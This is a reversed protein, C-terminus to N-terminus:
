PKLERRPVRRKFLKQHVHGNSSQPCFKHSVCIESPKEGAKIYRIIERKYVDMANCYDRCALAAPSREATCVCNFERSIEKDSKGQALLQPVRWTLMNCVSCSQEKFSAGVLRACLLFFM